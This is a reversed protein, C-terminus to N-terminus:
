PGHSIGASAATMEVPEILPAGTFGDRRGHFRHSPASFGAVRLTTTM